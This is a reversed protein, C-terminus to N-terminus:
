PLTATPPVINACRRCFLQVYHSALFSSVASMATFGITLASMTYEVNRNDPAAITGIGASGSLIGFGISSANWDIQKTDLRDCDIAEQYVNQTLEIRATKWRLSCGATLILLGALWREM